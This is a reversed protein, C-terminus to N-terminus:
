SDHKIMKLPIWKLSARLIICVERYRKSIIAQKISLKTSKNVLKNWSVNFRKLLQVDKRKIDFVQKIANFIVGSIVSIQSKTLHKLVNKKDSDKLSVLYHLFLGEKSLLEKM